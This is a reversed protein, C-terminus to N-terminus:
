LLRDTYSSILAAPKGVGDGPPVKSLKITLHQRSVSKEDIKFGAIFHYTDRGNFM